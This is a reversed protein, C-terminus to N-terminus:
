RFAEVEATHLLTIHGIRRKDDFIRSLMILARCAKVWPRRGVVSVTREERQAPFSGNLRYCKEDLM